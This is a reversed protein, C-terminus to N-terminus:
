YAVRSSGKSEDNACGEFFVNACKNGVLSKVKTILRGRVKSEDNACGEYVCQCV